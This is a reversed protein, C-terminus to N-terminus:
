GQSTGGALRTVPKERAQLTVKGTEVWDPDPEKRERTRKRTQFSANRMLQMHADASDMTGTHLLDAVYLRSAGRPYISASMTLDNGHYRWVRIAVHIGNDALLEAFATIEPVSGYMADRKLKWACLENREWLVNRQEEPVATNHTLTILDCWTAHAIRSRQSWRSEIYEFIHARMEAAMHERARNDTSGCLQKLVLWLCFFVCDGNTIEAFFTPQLPPAAHAVESESYCTLRPAKSRVTAIATDIEPSSVPPTSLDVVCNAAREVDGGCERLVLQLTGEPVDAGVLERLQQMTAAHQTHAAHTFETHHTRKVRGRHGRRLAASRTVAALVIAKDKKLTADNSGIGGAFGRGIARAPSWPSSM